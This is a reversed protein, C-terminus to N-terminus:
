DCFFVERATLQEYINDAEEKDASTLSICGLWTIERTDGQDTNLEFVIMKEEATKQPV